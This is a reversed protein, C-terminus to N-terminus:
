FFFFATAFDMDTVGISSGRRAEARGRGEAEARDGVELGVVELDHCWCVEGASGLVEM